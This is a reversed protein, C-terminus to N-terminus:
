SFMNRTTNIVNAVEYSNAVEGSTLFFLNKTKPPSARFCGLVDRSERSERRM